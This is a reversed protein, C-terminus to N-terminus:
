SKSMTTADDLLTCLATERRARASPQSQIHQVENMTPMTPETAPAAAANTPLRAMSALATASVVCIEQGFM